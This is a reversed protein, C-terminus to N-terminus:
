KRKAGFLYHALTPSTRITGSIALCVCIILISVAIAAFFQIVIMNTPEIYPKLFQMNPIFFYHLLYIDLTRRGVFQLIRSLRTESAFYAEKSFFIIFLLLLGAYRVIIDHVAKYALSMANKFEVDFYLLLCIVFVVIVGLRFYDSKVYRLFAESYKRCLIGFAFYQFYKTLNEMCLVDWWRSDNRFLVLVAVGIVSLAILSWDVVRSTTYRGILSLTYYLVFMEFLVLTFWYGGFGYKFFSIPNGGMCITYLSFFVITPVIQVLAKKRLNEVFFQANWREVAKYAIYGSIFFFMPMRFTLVISGLVSSYGGIGFTTMLVHGFVVLLM